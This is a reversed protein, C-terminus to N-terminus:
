ISLPLSVVVLGEFDYAKIGVIATIALFGGM